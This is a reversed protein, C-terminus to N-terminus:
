FCLYNNKSDIYKDKNSAALRNDTKMYGMSMFSVKEWRCRKSMIVTKVVGMHFM